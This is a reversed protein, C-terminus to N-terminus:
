PLCCGQTRASHCLAGGVTDLMCLVGADIHDTQKYDGIDDDTAPFGETLTRGPVLVLTPTAARLKRSWLVRWV